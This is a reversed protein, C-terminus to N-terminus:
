CRENRIFILHATSSIFVTPLRFSAATTPQKSWVKRLGRAVTQFFLSKIVPNYFVTFLSILTPKFFFHLVLVLRLFFFSPITLHNSHLRICFLPPSFPLSRPPHSPFSLLKQEAASLSFPPTLFLFFFFLVLWSVYVVPNKPTQNIKPPNTQNSPHNSPCPPLSSFLSIPPIFSFSIYREYPVWPTHNGYTVVSCLSARNGNPTLRPTHFVPRFCFPARFCHQRPSDPVAM